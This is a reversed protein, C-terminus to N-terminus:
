WEAVSGVWNDILNWNIWWVIGSHLYYGRRRTGVDTPAL